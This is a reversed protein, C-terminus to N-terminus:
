SHTLTERINLPDVPIQMLILHIYTLKDYICQISRTYENKLSYMNISTFIPFSDIFLVKICPLGNLRVRDLLVRGIDVDDYYCLPM